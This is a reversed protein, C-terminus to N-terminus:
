LRACWGKGPAQPTLGLLWSKGSNAQILLRTDVLVSIDCELKGGGILQGILMANTRRWWLM